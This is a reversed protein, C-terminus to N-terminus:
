EEVIPLLDPTAPYLLSTEGAPVWGRENEWEVFYWLSDQSRGLAIALENPPIKILTTSGAPDALLSVEVRTILVIATTIPETTATAPLSLSAPTPTLPVPTDLPAPYSESYTATQTLQVAANRTALAQRTQRTDPSQTSEVNLAPVTEVIKDGSNSGWQMLLLLILCIGLGFFLLLVRAQAQRSRTNQTPSGHSSSHTSETNLPESVSKEYTINGWYQRISELEQREQKGNLKNIVEFIEGLLRTIDYLSVATPEAEYRRKLTEHQKLIAEYQQQYAQRRQLIEEYTSM